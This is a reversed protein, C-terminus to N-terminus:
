HCQELIFTRVDGIVEVSRPGLTLEHQGNEYNKIECRVSALRERLLDLGKPDLHHDNPDVLILVPCAISRVKRLVKRRLQFLRALSATSHEPFANHATLLYGIPRKTKPRLGLFNKAPGPLYSLFELIAAKSRSRIKLPPSLLVVGRVQDSFVAALGLGLLSGM